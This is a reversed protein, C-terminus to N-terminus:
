AFDVSLSHYKAPLRGLRELCALCRGCPLTQRRCRHVKFLAARPVGLTILREREKEIEVSVRQRREETHPRDLYRWWWYLNNLKSFM